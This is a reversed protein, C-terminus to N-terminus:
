LVKCNNKDQELLWNVCRVIVDGHCPKPHCYCALRIPRKKIVALKLINLANMVKPNNVKIQAFLWQRYQNIVSDWEPENNLLFPNALPHADLDLKKNEGGIYIIGNGELGDELGNIVTLYSRNNIQYELSNILDFAEKNTLLARSPKNFNSKLWTRPCPIIDSLQNFLNNTLSVFDKYDITGKEM